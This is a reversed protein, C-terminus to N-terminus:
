EVTGSQGWVVENNHLAVKDLVYDVGKPHGLANLFVALNLADAQGFVSGKHALKEYVYNMHLFGLEFVYATQFNLISVVVALTGNYPSAYSNPITSLNSLVLNFRTGQASYEVYTSGKNELERRAGQISFRDDLRAQM